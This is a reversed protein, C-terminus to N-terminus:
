HVRYSTSWGSAKEDCCTDYNPVVTHGLSTSRELMLVAPTTKKRQPESPCTYHKKWACRGGVGFVSDAPAPAPPPAYFGGVGCGSRALLEASTLQSQDGGGRLTKVHRILYRRAEEVSLLSPNPAGLKKRSICLRMPGIREHWRADVSGRAHYCPMPAAPSPDYCCGIARCDRQSATPGCALRDIADVDCKNASSSSSASSKSSESSADRKVATVREREQGSQGSKGSRWLPWTPWWPWLWAQQWAGDGVSVVYTLLLLLLAVGVAMAMVLVGKPVDGLRLSRLRVYWQGQM